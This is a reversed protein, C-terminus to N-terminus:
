KRNKSSTSMVGSLDAQQKLHDNDDLHGCGQALSAVQSIRNPCESSKKQSDM